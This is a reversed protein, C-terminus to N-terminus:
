ACLTHELSALQHRATALNARERDLVLYLFYDPAAALPRILHYQSSLTILIDEIPDTMGLAQVVCQKERVVDVNGPGALDLQVNDGGSQALLEGSDLSLMAVGIAGDIMMAARVSYGARNRIRTDQDVPGDGRRKSEDFAASAEDKRRMAECLLYRLGETITVQTPKALLSLELRADEDWSLIELAAPNGRLTDLAADMLVGDRFTLEGHRDNRTVTLRCSTREVELLQTFGALTVGEIGGQKGHLSRQVAKHTTLLGSPASAPDDNERSEPSAPKVERQIAFYSTIKKRRNRIPEVTWQMQFPSGDKRYNVTEGVFREGSALCQRLRNIVRPDTDRGQLIRPTKGKLEDASYGTMQTFAPNAYLIHPGPADIQADTVVLADQLRDLM